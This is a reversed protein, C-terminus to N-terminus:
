DFYKKYCATLREKAFQEGKLEIYGNALTRISDNSCKVKFKHRVSLIKKLWEPDTEAILPRGIKVSKM